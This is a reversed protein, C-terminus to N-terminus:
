LSTAKLGSLRTSSLSVLRRTFATVAPSVRVGIAPIPKKLQTSTVRATGSIAQCVPALRRSMPDSPDTAELAMPSMRRAIRTPMGLSFRLSSTFLPKPRATPPLTLRGVPLAAAKVLSPRTVPPGTIM